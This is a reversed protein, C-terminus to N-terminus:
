SFQRQPFISILSLKEWLEHMNEFRKKGRVNAEKSALNSYSVNAEQSSSVELRKENKLWTIM